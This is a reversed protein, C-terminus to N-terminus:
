YHTRVTSSCAGLVLINDSQSELFYLYDSGIGSDGRLRDRIIIWIVKIGGKDNM